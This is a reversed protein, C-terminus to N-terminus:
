QKTGRLTILADMIDRIGVGYTVDGKIEIFYSQNAIDRVIDFEKGDPLTGDAVHKVLAMPRGDSYVKVKVDLKDEAFSITKTM